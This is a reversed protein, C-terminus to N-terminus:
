PAAPLPSAARAPPLPVPGRTFLGALLLAIGAATVTLGIGLRRASFRGPAPAADRLAQVPAVHTARWAPPIAAVVTVALGLGFAAATGAAPVALQSVPLSLGFASLLAALGRALGIGALGGVAGASAG